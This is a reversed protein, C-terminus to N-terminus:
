KEPIHFNGPRLNCRFLIKVVKVNNETKIKRQNRWRQFAETSANIHFYKPTSMVEQWNILNIIIHFFNDLYCTVANLLRQGIFVSKWILVNLFVLKM